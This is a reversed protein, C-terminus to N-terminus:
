DLVRLTRADALLSRRLESTFEEILSFSYLHYEGSHMASTIFQGAGAIEAIISRAFRPAFERSGAAPRALVALIGETWEVPAVAPLALDGVLASIALSRDEEATRQAYRWIGGVLSNTNRTSPRFGGPDRIRRHAVLWDERSFVARGQALVAALELGESGIESMRTILADELDYLARSLGAIDAVPDNLRTTPNRSLDEIRALPSTGGYVPFWHPLEVASSSQALGLRSNAVLAICLAPSAEAVALERECASRNKRLVKSFDSLVASPHEFVRGRVPLAVAAVESLEANLADAFAGRSEQTVVWLISLGGSGSLRAKIQRAVVAVDAGM